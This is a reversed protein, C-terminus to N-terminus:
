GSPLYNKFKEFLHLTSFVNLEGKKGVTNELICNIKGEKERAKRFFVKL